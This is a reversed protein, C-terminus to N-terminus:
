FSFRASERQTERHLEHLRKRKADQASSAQVHLVKLHAHHDEICAM